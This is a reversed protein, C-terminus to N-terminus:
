NAHTQSTLSRDVAPWVDGIFKTIVSDLTQGKFTLPRITVKTIEPAM